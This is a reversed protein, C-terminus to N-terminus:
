EALNLDWPIKNWPSKPDELLRECADRYLAGTQKMESYSWYERGFLFSDGVDKWSDFHKQLDRAVPMMLDWAEAETLYGAVYGWRCLNLYRVYDWALVPNKGFRRYREKVLQVQRLDDPDKRTRELLENYQAQNLSSVYTGRKEFDVHHGYKRLSGLVELLSAKNTVDWTNRLAASKSAAWEPTLPAGNLADHHEGNRATLVGSAALAWAKAPSVVIPDPPKPTPNAAEEVRNMLGGIARHVSTQRETFSMTRQLVFACVVCFLIAGLVIKRM